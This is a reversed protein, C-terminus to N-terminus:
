LPQEFALYRLLAWCQRDDRTVSVWAQDRAIVVVRDGRVLREVMPAEAAPAARCNLVTATVFAPLGRPLTEPRAAVSTNAEPPAVSRDQMLVVWFLLLVLVALLGIYFRQFWDRRDSEFVRAVAARMRERSPLFRQRLAALRESIRPAPEEAPLPRVNRWDTDVGPDDMFDPVASRLHRSDPQFAAAEEAQMHRLVEQIPLEDRSPEPESAFSPEEFAEAPEDMTFDAASEEEPTGPAEEFDPVPEGTAPDTAAAPPLEELEATGVGEPRTRSWVVRYGRPIQWNDFATRVLDCGCRRCRSFYYGDNWRPTPEPAHWGLACRLSVASTASNM